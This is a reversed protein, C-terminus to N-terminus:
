IKYKSSYKKRLITLGNCSPITSFEWFNQNLEAVARYPGGNAWQGEKVALDCHYHPDWYGYMLDHLIIVSRSNVHSDLLELERKVHDYAHWDDVFIVDILEDNKLNELYSIADSKIFKWNKRLFDPPNFSTANVDVSTLNGDNLRAALLLPLTSSGERVGLEVINKADLSLCISLLSLLHKDSDGEGTLAKLTLQKILDTTEERIM